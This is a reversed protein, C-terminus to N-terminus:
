NGSEIVHQATGDIVPGSSAASRRQEALKRVVTDFSGGENITTTENTQNVNNNINIGGRKVLGIVEGALTMSHKDGSRVGNRLAEMFAPALDPIFFKLLDERYQDIDQIQKKSPRM